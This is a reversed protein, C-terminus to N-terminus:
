PLEFLIRSLLDYLLRLKAQVGDFGLTFRNIILNSNVHKSGIREM